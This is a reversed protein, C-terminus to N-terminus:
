FSKLGDFGEFGEFYEVGKVGEFCEVGKFCEFSHIFLSIFNQFGLHVYGRREPRSWMVM